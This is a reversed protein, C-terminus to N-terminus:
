NARLERMEFFGEFEPYLQVLLRAYRSIFSNNIKFEEVGQSSTAFYFRVNEMLAKAGFHERGAHKLRFALDKFREFVDPHNKHFEEFREQITRKCGPTNTDNEQGDPEWDFLDHQEMVAGIWSV